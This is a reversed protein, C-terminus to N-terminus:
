VSAPKVGSEPRFKLNREAWAAGLAVALCTVIAATARLGATEPIALAEQEPPLLMGCAVEFGVVGLIAGLVGGIAGLGARGRGGIALGFGLGAALGMVAAPAGHALTLYCLDPIKRVLPDLDM